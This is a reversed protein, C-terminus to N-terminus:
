KVEGVAGYVAEGLRKETNNNGSGTIKRGLTDRNLYV